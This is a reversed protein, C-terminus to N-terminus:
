RKGAKQRRTPLGGGGPRGPASGQAGGRLREADGGRLVHPRQPLLRELDWHAMQCIEREKPTLANVPDFPDRMLPHGPLARKLWVFFFDSLDAYPVAFYYPPDTFWLDSAQDPLVSERADNLQATGKRWDSGIVGLTAIANELTISWSGSSDGITVGEAYAWQMPLAQMSFVKRPCEAVPEWPCNSSAMEAFKSYLLALLDRSHEQKAGKSAFATHIRQALVSLALKQRAAFMDGWQNMGYLPV